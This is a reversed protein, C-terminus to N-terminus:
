VVFQERLRDIQLNNYGLEHLIAFTHDGQEPAAKMPGKNRPHSSFQMPLNVVQIDGLDPHHLTRAMGLHQVQADEFM